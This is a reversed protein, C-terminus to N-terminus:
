IWESFDKRQQQETEFKKRLEDIVTKFNTTRLPAINTYYNELADGDLIITVANRLQDTGIGNENCHEYFVKLTIDLSDEYGKYKMSIPFTKRLNIIRYGAPLPNLSPITTKNNYPIIRPEAKVEENASI